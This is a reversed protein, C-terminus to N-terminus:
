DNEAVETVDIVTMKAIQEKREKCIKVLQAKEDKNLNVCNEKYFQTLNDETIIKEVSQKLSEMKGNDTVVSKEKAPVPVPNDFSDKYPYDMAEDSTILGGLQDAFVDRIAFGRARMQLMRKPYSKWVNKGWLGANEADEKSFERYQGSAMDKRKIYCKATMTENDFTEQIDEVLGTRMAIALLGDGWVCMKGNIEALQNVAFTPTLGLERGYSILAICRNLNEESVEKDKCQKQKNILFKSPYIGTNILLRVEERTKDLDKFETIEM